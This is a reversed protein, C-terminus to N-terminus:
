IDTLAVSTEISIVSGALPRPWVPGFLVQADVERSANWIELAQYFEPWCKHPALSMQSALFLKCARKTKCRLEDESLSSKYLMIIQSMSTMNQLMCMTSNHVIYTTSRIWWASPMRSDGPLLPCRTWNVPCRQASAWPELPVLRSDRLNHAGNKWWTM